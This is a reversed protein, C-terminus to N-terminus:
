ANNVNLFYVPHVVPSCLLSSYSSLSRVEKVNFLPKKKVNDKVDKYKVGEKIDAELSPYQSVM